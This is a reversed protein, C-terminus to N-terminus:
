DNMYGRLNDATKWLKDKLEKNSTPTQPEAAKKPRGRRPLANPLLTMRIEEGRDCCM